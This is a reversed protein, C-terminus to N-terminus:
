SGGTPLDQKTHDNAFQVHALGISPAICAHAEEATAGGPSPGVAAEAAREVAACGIFLVQQQAEGANQVFEASRLLRGRSYAALHKAIPELFAPVASGFGDQRVVEAAITVWGM